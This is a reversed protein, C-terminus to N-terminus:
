FPNTPIIKARIRTPYTNVQNTKLKYAQQLVHKLM